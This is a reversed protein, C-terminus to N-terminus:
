RGGGYQWGRGGGGGLDGTIKRLMQVEGEDKRLRTEGGLMVNAWHNLGKTEVAEAHRKGVGV